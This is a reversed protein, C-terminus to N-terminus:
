RDRRVELAAGAGANTILDQTPHFEIARIRNINPNKIVAVGVTMEDLLRCHPGAEEAEVERITGLFFSAYGSIFRM